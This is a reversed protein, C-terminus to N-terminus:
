GGTRIHVGRGEPFNGLWMARWSWVMGLRVDPGRPTGKRFFFFRIFDFMRYQRNEMLFNIRTYNIGYDHLRKQAYIVKMTSLKNELGEINVIKEKPRSNTKDSVASIKPRKSLGTEGRRIGGLISNPAAVHHDKELYKNICRHNHWSRSSPANERSMVM